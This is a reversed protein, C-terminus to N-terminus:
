RAAKGKKPAAELTVGNKRLFAKVEANPHVTLGEKYKDMAEQVKGAQYLANGARFLDNASKTAKQDRLIVEIDEIWSRLSDDGPSMALAKRYLSVAEDLRRQLYLTDGQRVLRTADARTGLGVDEPGNVPDPSAPVTKKLEEVRNQAESTEWMSLSELFKQLAEAHKGRRELKMGDSYLRSALKQRRSVVSQLENMHQSLAADQNSMLSASYHNLAEQLRGERELASGEAAYKDADAILAMRNQIREVRNEVADSSVLKLSQTYYDLAEDYLGEQDYASATDRLWQAKQRLIRDADAEKEAERIEQEGEAMPWVVQARRYSKLAEDYLKRARQEKAQRRLEEGRLCRAYISMMNRAGGTIESDRPAADQANKALEVAETHKKEEWLTQAQQWDQWAQRSRESEKLIFRSLAVSIVIKGKGMFVGAPTFAKVSLESEGTESRQILLDHADQSLVATAADVTWVFSHKGEFAPRLKARIRVPRGVPLAGAEVDKREISDWILVPEPVVSLDVDFESPVVTRSITGLSAGSTRDRVTASVQIPSTDVPTFACEFGGERLLIPQVNGSVAWEIIADSPLSDPDPSLSFEEGVHPEREHLFKPASCSPSCGLVLLLVACLLVKLRKKLAM